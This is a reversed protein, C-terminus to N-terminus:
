CFGNANVSFTFTGGPDMVTTPRGSTTNQSHAGQKCFAEIKYTATELTMYNNIRDLDFAVYSQLDVCAFYLTKTLTGNKYVNIYFDDLMYDKLDSQDINAEFTGSAPNLKLSNAGITKTQNVDPSPAIGGSNNGSGGISGGTTGGTSGGTSSGVMVMCTDRQGSTAYAHIYATGAAKGTILGNQDVTAVNANSSDWKLSKDTAGAPTIAAKLQFTAGVKISASRHDFDVSTVAVSATTPTSAAKSSSATSSSAASSSAASSSSASSSASDGTSIASSSSAASSGASDAAGMRLAMQNNVVHNAKTTAMLNSLVVGGIIAAVIICGGSIAIAKGRTTGLTRKVWESAADYKEKLMESIRM